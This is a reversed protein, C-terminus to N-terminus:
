PTSFPASLLCVIVTREELVFCKVRQAHLHGVHLLLLM